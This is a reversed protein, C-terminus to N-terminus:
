APRASAVPEALDWGDHGRLADRVIVWARGVALAVDSALVTMEAALAPRAPIDHTGPIAIYSTGLAAIAPDAGAAATIASVAGDLAAKSAGLPDGTWRVTIVARWRRQELVVTQKGHEVRVAGEAALANVARNVVAVDAGLEAALLGQRPLATGPLYTGSAIRARLEAAVQRYGPRANDVLGGAESDDEPWDYLDAGPTGLVAM